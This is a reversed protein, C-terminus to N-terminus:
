GSRGSIETELEMVLSEISQREGTGSALERRAYHLLDQWHKMTDAYVPHKRLRRASRVAATLNDRTSGHLRM